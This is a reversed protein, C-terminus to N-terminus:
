RIRSLGMRSRLFEQLSVELPTETSVQRYLIGLDGCIKRLAAGHETMKRIYEPRAASPDIYLFRGTEMDEFFSASEFKFDIEAPDLVQFVVVEHGFGRLYGLRQKLEGLPTLFDSLIVIMGRKRVLGLFTDLAFPLDTEGKLEKQLAGIVQRLHGPRTRAPIFEYEKGAFHLLGVADRQLVLFYGLTAALTQAYQAKNYGLSGFRM